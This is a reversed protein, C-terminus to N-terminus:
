SIEKALERMALRFKISPETRGSQWAYISGTNTDLKEALEPVSLRVDFRRFSELSRGLAPQEFFYWESKQSNSM